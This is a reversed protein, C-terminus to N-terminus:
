GVGYHEDVAIHRRFFKIMDGSEELLRFYGDLFATDQVIHFEIEVIFGSTVLQQIDDTVESQDSTGDLALHRCHLGSVEGVRSECSLNFM